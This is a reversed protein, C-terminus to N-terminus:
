VRGLRSIEDFLHVQSIIAKRFDGLHLSENESHANTYPDEIGTLLAPINGLAESFPGAFPISGGSGIYVAERGYGSKLARRAADFYPHAIDTSWHNGRKEEIFSIKVNWPALETIRKKLAELAFERSIDPVTRLGLKAWAKELVVNGASTRSGAVMSNVVLSPQRWLKELIEDGGGFVDVGELVQAHERFLDPTMKLSGIMDRETQSLPRVKSILEPIALTGDESVLGAIIKSLAIVPDPVPGGYIGSHLPHDLSSVEVQLTVLGRLSVTMSPIGTDYNGVDALVMVDAALRDRYAKLFDQLHASGIEEEGEIIVKVNVPLSGTTRLWSAISALHLVVGAKDDAIGRAYIRDGIVTPEYVPTKWLEERMPPQVDHHAYLLITPKDSGAHLWDGYIYPHVGPLRLIEIHELGAKGMQSAVENASTELHVPDFGAWSCSPIRALTKLDNLFSDFHQDAYIAPKM